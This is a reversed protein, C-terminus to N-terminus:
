DHLAISESLSIILNASVEMCDLDLRSLDLILPTLDSKSGKPFECLVTLHVIKSRFHFSISCGSVWKKLSNRSLFNEYWLLNEFIGGHQHPKFNTLVCCGLTLLCKDLFTGVCLYSKSQICEPSFFILKQGHICLNTYRSNCYFLAGPLM